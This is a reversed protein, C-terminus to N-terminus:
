SLALNGDADHLGADQDAQIQLLHAVHATQTSSFQGLLAEAEVLLAESGASPAPTTRLREIILLQKAIQGEGESVHRRVMELPTEGASM